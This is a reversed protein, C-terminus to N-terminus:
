LISIKKTTTTIKARLIKWNRIQVQIVADFCFLCSLLQIDVVALNM